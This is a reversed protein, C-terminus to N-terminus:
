TSRPYTPRVKRHKDPMANSATPHPSFHPTRFNPVMSSPYITIGAPYSSSPRRKRPEEATGVLCSPRRPPHIQIAAPAAVCALTFASSNEVLDTIEDFRGFSRVHIHPCPQSALSPTMRARSRPLRTPSARRVRRAPGLVPFTRVAQRMSSCKMCHNPVGVVTRTIGHIHV